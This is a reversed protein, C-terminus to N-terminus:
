TEINMPLVHYRCGDIRARRRGRHRRDGDPHRQRHGAGPGAVGHGLVVFQRGTRRCHRLDPQEVLRMGPREAKGDGTIDICKTNPQNGCPTLYISGPSLFLRTTSIADDIAEQAASIVQKRWQMNGVIQLSSKGLGLTTIALLTLVMLLILGMIMVVGRQSDRIARM